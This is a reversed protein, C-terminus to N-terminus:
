FPIPELAAALKDVLEGVQGPELIYPPALVVLDGCVGDACGSTPYCVLGREMAAAKLREAVRAERPLPAKTDRDAVFELALFLGRGRIDGVHPHQGFRADLATRLEGGRVRVSQLLDEREITELVALAAACAVPHGMYTHGNALAGSGAEIAAAVRGSCLTAAVPQYGAGLGKAITVIDPCAGEDEIAFLRGTRGMGCMVEDAIFLVGYRNCISRVRALYGPAPPVCGLGAGAVPEALFAAVNEPGLRLIEAELEDAIRAGYDALAEGERQERYPYCPAIHSVEMLLPAYPARRGAHGGAALAGLTNGHYGMRRAIFRTRRPEGIEIVYQRALKLAVEIAESGSGVFAVRGAGFGEPARAILHDALREAPESTFFGSHAYALRAVQARVAEIVAPHSHGLCSVAAGGSADLYRRGEEDILYA